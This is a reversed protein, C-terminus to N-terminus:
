AAEFLDDLFSGEKLEVIITPTIKELLSDPLNLNKLILGEPEEIYSYGSYGQKLKKAWCNALIVVDIYEYLQERKESCSQNFMRQERSYTHHYRCVKVLYEPLDWSEGIAEGLLDHRPTGLAKETAIFSLNRNRAEESVELMKKEGLCFAGMKGMDHLLGATYFREYDSKGMKKAIISSIVGVAHAHKWFAKWDFGNKYPNTKLFNGILSERLAEDRVREVGLVQIADSVTDVQILRAYKSARAVRLIKVVLSQDKRIKDVFVSINTEFSNEISQVLEVINSRLTPLTTISDALSKYDHIQGGNEDFKIFSNKQTM